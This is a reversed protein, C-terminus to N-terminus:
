SASKGPKPLTDLKKAWDAARLRMRSADESLVFGSQVAKRLAQDYATMFGASGKYLAALEQDSFERSYGYLFGLRYGDPKTTGSGRHEASPVAFDPLRIGGLANGRADRRIKPPQESTMAIPQAKPPPTGHTLWRQMHRIAAEFAPRIPLWNPSELESLKFGPRLEADKKGLLERPVTVHSAGAVEWLRFRATDPQRVPVYGEAETESNVILVPVGLDNRIKASSRNRRIAEASGGSPPQLTPQEAFPVTWGFDIYPLYGDFVRELGHIGDIYTRLRAASQSAGAAVLRQVVLGGMPDNDLKPRGPAVARGAQTFLDYSYPDGPHQLSAYREPDWQRLGAATPGPFGDIGVKQASVGVWAYGRLFEGESVSGLEYGATVNQWHVVVTGNFRKPDAPRVVLIRTRYPVAEAKRQVKWKGDLSQQSGPALEYASANGSLFYEHAVYGYQKLDFEPVSFAQKRKGGQIPGEISTPRAGRHQSTAVSDADVPAPAVLASVGVLFAIVWALPGRRAHM